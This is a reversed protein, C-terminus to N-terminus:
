EQLSVRVSRALSAQAADLTWLTRGTAAATAIILLDTAKSSRREARATALVDAYHEATTEDIPLPEFASRVAALRSQRLAQVRPDTALRVGARLEGMTIVSIAATDGAQMVLADASAVIVSTDLLLRTV